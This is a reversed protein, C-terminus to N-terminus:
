SSGDHQADEPFRHDGAHQYPLLCYVAVWRKGDWNLVSVVAPCNPWDQTM